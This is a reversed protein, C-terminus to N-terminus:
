EEEVGRADFASRENRKKGKVILILFFFCCVLIKREWAHARTCFIPYLLLISYFSHWPVFRYVTSSVCFFFCSSFSSLPLSMDYPSFYTGTDTQPSWYQRFSQCIDFYEKINPQQKYIRINKLISTTSQLTAHSQGTRIYLLLMFIFGMRAETLRKEKKNRERHSIMCRPLVKKLAAFFSTDLLKQTEFNQWTRNSLKFHRVSEINKPLFGQSKKKSINITKFFYM